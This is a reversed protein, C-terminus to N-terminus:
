STAPPNWRITSPELKGDKALEMVSGDALLLGIRHDTGGRTLTRRIPLDPFQKQLRAIKKPGFACRAMVM